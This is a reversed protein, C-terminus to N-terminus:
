GVWSGNIWATFLKLQLFVNLLYLVFVAKNGHRKHTTFLLGFAMVIVGTLQLFRNEAGSVKTLLGWTYQPFGYMVLVVTLVLAFGLLTNKNFNTAHLVHLLFISFFPTAFIYRNLSFISTGGGADVGAFWLMYFPVVFLYALSFALAPEIGFHFKKLKLIFFRLLFFLAFAGVLFAASDLWLLRYSDWTTLPFEPIRLQNNWSSLVEFIAFFKGTQLYQLLNVALTSLVTALLLYAYKKILKKNENRSFGLEMFFSFFLAPIFILSASRSISGLAIGAATLGTKNTKFGVLAIVGSLFFLAEAYPVFCFFLSPFSIALLLSPIKFEFYRTFLIFAGILFILNVASIWFADLQLFRQLYPFLPYFALNCQENAVYVYNNNVISQYWGADWQVLNAASPLTPVIGAAYLLLYLLIVGTFHLLIITVLPLFKIKDAQEKIFDFNKM